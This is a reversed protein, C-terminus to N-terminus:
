MRKVYALFISILCICFANIHIFTVKIFSLIFLEGSLYYLGTDILIYFM